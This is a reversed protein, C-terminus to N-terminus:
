TPAVLKSLKIKSENKYREMKWLLVRYNNSNIETHDVRINGRFKYVWFKLAHIGQCKLQKFGKGIEGSCKIWQLNLKNLSCRLLVCKSDLSLVTNCSRLAINEKKTGWEAGQCIKWKYTTWMDTANEKWKWLRNVAAAIILKQAAAAM